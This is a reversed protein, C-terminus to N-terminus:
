TQYKSVLFCSMPKLYKSVPMVENNAASLQFLSHAKTLNDKTKNLLPLVHKKFHGEHTLTVMSGSDLLSPIKQGLIEMSISPCKSVVRNLVHWKTESSVANNTLTRLM